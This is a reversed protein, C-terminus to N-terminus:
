QSMPLVTKVENESVLVTLLNIVLKSKDEPALDVLKNKGLSEIVGETLKVAGMVIQERAAVIQQAQQRRLMAQAIEPAYALHTIRADLVDLGATRVVSKLARILEQTIQAVHSRLGIKAAPDEDVSPVGQQVEYPYSSSIQRLASEAQITAYENYNEIDFLAKATDSVAWVISAAIEIPNGNADNVKLKATALNNAKISIKQRVSFPNCFHFGEDRCSGSYRGFFTLVVADGPKLVFFGKVSFFFILFAAVGGFKILPAGSFIFFLVLPLLFAFIIAVALFGDM